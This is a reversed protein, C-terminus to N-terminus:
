TQFMRRIRRMLRWGLLIGQLLSAGTKVARVAMGGRSAAPKLPALLEHAIHQMRTRSARLQRRVEAKQRAIEELTYEKMESM